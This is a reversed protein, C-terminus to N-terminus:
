VLIVTTQSAWDPGTVYSSRGKFSNKNSDEVNSILSTTKRSYERVAMGGWEVM